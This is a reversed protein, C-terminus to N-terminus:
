STPGKFYFTPMPSEHLNYKKPEYINLIYWIVFLVLASIGMWMMMKAYDPLNKCEVIGNVSNKDLEVELEETTFTDTLYCNKNKYNWAKCDLDSVCMNRCEEESTGTSAIVYKGKFKLDKREHTSVRVCDM